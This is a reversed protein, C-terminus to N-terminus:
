YQMAPVHAEAALLERVLQEVACGSAWGAQRANEVAIQPPTSQLADRMVASHPTRRAWTCSAARLVMWALLRRPVSCHAGIAQLRQKSSAIGLQKWAAQGTRFATADALLPATDALCGGRQLLHSVDGGLLVGHVPATPPMDGSAPAQLPMSGQVLRTVMHTFHTAVSRLLHLLPADQRPCRRYQRLLAVLAPAKCVVAHLKCWALLLACHLNHLVGAAGSAGEDLLLPHLRPRAYALLQRALCSALSTDAHFGIPHAAPAAGPQAPLAAAAALNRTVPTADAHHRLQTARQMDVQVSGSSLDWLLGCWPMIRAAPTHSSGTSTKSPNVTCSYQQAPAAAPDMMCAAFADAVAKSTTVLMSDDILRMLMSLAPTNPDAQEGRELAPLVHRLEMDGFYLNCLSSSLVSGQPIGRTQLFVRASPQGAPATPRGVGGGEPIGVGGGEAIGRRTWVLHAKLHSVLQAAALASPLRTQRVMDTLVANQRCTASTAATAGFPLASALGSAPNIGCGRHFRTKPMTQAVSAGGAADTPVFTTSAFKQIRYVHQLAMSPATSGAQEVLPLVIDLLRGPRISDFCSQVDVCVAYLVAPEASQETRAHLARHFVRWASHMGDLGMVAAGLRHPFARRVCALVEHLASLKQNLSGKSKAHQAASGSAGSLAAQLAPPLQSPALSTRQQVAAAGGASLAASVARTAAAKVPAAARSETATALNMIPRMGATKPLLRISACGLPVAPLTHAPRTAPSGSVSLAQLGLRTQAQQMEHQRLALWVPKRFLVPAQQSQESDSMYFCQALLPVCVDCLIWLLWARVLRAATVAAQANAGGPPWAWAFALTPCGPLLWTDARLCDFRSSCLMAHLRRLLFRTGTAGGRLESPLLHLLVGRMFQMCQALPVTCRSPLCRGQSDVPLASPAAAATSSPAAHVLSPRPQAMGSQLAQLDTAATASAVSPLGLAAWPVAGRASASAPPVKDGRASTFATIGPRSVADHEFHRALKLPQSSAQDERRRKAGGRSSRDAALASPRSPAGSGEARLWAPLPCHERLLRRFPVSAVQHVVHGLAKCLGRRAAAPLPGTYRLLAPLLPVGAESSPSSSSPHSSVASEAPWMPAADPVTNTRGPLFVSAADRLHQQAAPPPALCRAAAAAQLLPHKRPLGPQRCFSLRYFMRTHPLVYGPATGPQKDATTARPERTASYVPTGALQWVCGNSLEKFVFHSCMMRAFARSGMSRVAADMRSSGLEDVAANPFQRHAAASSSSALSLGLTLCNQLRQTALAATCISVIHRASSNSSSLQELATQAAVDQRSTEACTDM